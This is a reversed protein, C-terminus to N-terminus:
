AGAIEAWVRVGPSGDVGWRSAVAAVIHLGLGGPGSGRPRLVPESDSRGVDWVSILVGEPTGEILLELEDDEDCGSHRVANTVLESVVLAADEVIAAIADVGRAAERALQPASPGCKLRRRLLESVPRSM